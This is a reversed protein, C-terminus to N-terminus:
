APMHKQKFTQFFDQSKSAPSLVDQWNQLFRQWERKAAFRAWATLPYYRMSDLDILYPQQDVLIINSLNLDRHSLHHCALRNIMQAIDRAVTQWGPAQQEDLFFERAVTGQVYSCIFYSRGRFLGFRKELYAIPEFTHIGIKKLVHANRWNKEGRSRSIWRRLVQTWHRTNTRKIVRREGDIEVVIVTSTPDDKLVQLPKEFANEIHSLLDKMGATFYQDQCRIYSNFQRRVIM